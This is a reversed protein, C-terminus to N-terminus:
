TNMSGLQHLFTEVEQVENVMGLQHFIEKAKEGVERSEERKNLAKKVKALGKLCMATGRRDHYKGGWKICDILKPEAESFRGQRALVYSMRANSLCRYRKFGNRDAIDYACTYNNYAETLYNNNTLQDNPLESKNIQIEGQYYHFQFNHRDKKPFNVLIRQGRDILEQALELDRIKQEDNLKIRRIYLSAIYMMLDFRVHIDLNDKMLWAKQSLEMATGKRDSEDLFGLTLSRHYLLTAITRQDDREQAINELWQLWQERESWYGKLLTFGKLCEWFYWVDDYSNKEMCWDVVSRLNIWETVLITEDDYWERFDRNQYPKVLDKYFELWRDRLGAYQPQRDLELQTYEQTLSHLDYRDDDLTQILHRRQLDNLGKQRLQNLPLDVMFALAQESASGTFLSLALLVQYPLENRRERLQKILEGFCYSGLTEVTQPVSRTISDFGGIAIQAITYTIALPLGQTRDYIYQIQDTTLNLGQNTALHKILKESDTFSLFKLEISRGIGLNVRSTIIVKVNGPLESLLSIVDTQDGFSEVNDLIILISKGQVLKRFLLTKDEIMRPINQTNFCRFMTDLFCEINREVILRDILHIGLFKSNQASTFIIHTFYNDAFLDQYQAVEMALSTKGIGGMGYICIISPELRKCLNVVEQLEEQHAIFEIYSKRPFNYKIPEIIPLNYKRNWKEQFDRINLNIYNIQNPLHALKISIDWRRVGVSNENGANRITENTLLELKELEKVFQQRFYDRFKRLEKDSSPPENYIIPYIDNLEGQVILCQDKVEISVTQNTEPNESPNYELLRRLISAIKDRQKVNQPVSPQSGNTM